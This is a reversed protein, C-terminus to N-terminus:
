SHLYLLPPRMACSPVQSYGFYLTLYYGFGYPVVFGGLAALLGGKSSRLLGHYDVEMGVYLMMLFVGVEALANLGPSGHIIGLLAPGFVIGALL